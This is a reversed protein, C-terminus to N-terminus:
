GNMATLTNIIEAIESQRRNALFDEVRGTRHKMGTVGKWTYDMYTTSMGAANALRLATRVQQETAMLKAM